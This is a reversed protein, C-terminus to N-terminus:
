SYDETDAPRHSTGMLSEYVAVIQDELVDWNRAAVTAQAGDDLTRRLDADAVIREIQEVAHAVDGPRYFLCNEGDRLYEVNGGNPRVVVYGGTAMMELPPYSFSEVISSKVLIDCATYIEAVKDAPV